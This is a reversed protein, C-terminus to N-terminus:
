SGGGGGRTPQRGRQQQGGQPQAEPPPPARRATAKRQTRGIPGARLEQLTIKSDGGATNEFAALADQEDIGTSVKFRVFETRSISGNRSRDMKVFEEEIPGASAPLASATGLLALTILIRKM